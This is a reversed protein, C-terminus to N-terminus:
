GKIVMRTLSEKMDTEGEGMRLRMMESEGELTGHRKEIVVNKRKGSFCASLISSLPPLLTFARCARTIDDRAALVSGASLASTKGM